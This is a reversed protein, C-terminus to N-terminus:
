ATPKCSPSAGINWTTSSAAGYLNVYFAGCHSGNISYGGVYAFRVGSTSTYVQDCYYTTASGSSDVPLMGNESAFMKSIYNTSLSTKGTNIYGTGDLNYGTATSGDETGHTMKIYHTGNNLIWGATRRRQQGWYNEMGFVKVPTGNDSLGYFLGKDDLTGTPKMNSETGGTTFGEGFVAQTNLNKGMLVLLDNILFRDAVVEINWGSGNAQAYTMEQTATKSTMITKGSLSRLKDNSDLSGNYIPTYFPVIDGNENINSYCKFTNDVEYSAIKTYITDGDMTRSVYIVPFEMMANGDYTDDAVDSVTGDAKKTFDDPDLYYDVTGDSKLMCPKPMFFANEWSGYSPVGTTLDMQFPVAGVADDTYTVSTEPNPDTQDIAFGFCKREVPPESSCCGIQEFSGSIYIFEDYQQPSSGGNPVLYMIGAEGTSPLSDVVLTSLGGGEPIDSCDGNICLTRLNAM